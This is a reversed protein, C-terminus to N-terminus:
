QGSTDPCSTALSVMARSSGLALASSLAPLQRIGAKIKPSHGLLKVLLRLVWLTGMPTVLRFFQWM